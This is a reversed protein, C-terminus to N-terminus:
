SEGTVIPKSREHARASKATAMTVDFEDDLKAMYPYIAIAYSNTKPYVVGERQRPSTATSEEDTTPVEPLNHRTTHQSARMQAIVIPSPIDKIHRLVFVPTEKANKLKQLYFLPNEDYVVCLDISSDCVFLAYNWWVDEINDNKLAASLVRWCPGDFEFKFKKQLNADRRQDGPRRKAHQVLVNSASNTNGASSLVCFNAASFEPRHSALSQPESPSVPTIPLSPLVPIKTTVNLVQPQLPLGTTFSHTSFLSHNQSEIPEPTSVRVREASSRSDDTTSGTVSPETIEVVCSLSKTAVNTSRDSNLQTPDEEDDNKEDLPSPARFNNTQPTINILSERIGSSLPRSLPDYSWSDVLTDWLLDAERPELSTLKRPREPINKRIVSAIVALEGKINSFPVSSTFVELITMGLAYTDAEKSNEASGDLIEPAKFLNDDYVITSAIAWRASFKNESTTTTFSLTGKKLQTSGFDTLRPIGDDSILINAGKIDGHIVDQEHLYTVGESIGLAQVSTPPPQYEHSPQHLRFAGWKEDLPFDDGCPTSVSGTGIFRTYQPTQSPVM